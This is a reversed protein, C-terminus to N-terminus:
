KVSCYMHVVNHVPCQIAAKFWEQYKLACSASRNCAVPLEIVHYFQCSYIQAIHKGKITRSTRFVISLVFKTGM